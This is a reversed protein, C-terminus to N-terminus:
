SHATREPIGREQGSWGGEGSYVWSLNRFEVKSCGMILQEWSDGRSHCIGKEHDRM